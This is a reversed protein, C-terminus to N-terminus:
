IGCISIMKLTHNSFRKRQQAVRGAHGATKAVAAIKVATAYQNEVAQPSSGAKVYLRQL